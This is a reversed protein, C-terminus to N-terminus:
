SIYPRRVQVELYEFFFVFFFSPIKYL